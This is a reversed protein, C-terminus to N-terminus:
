VSGERAGEVSRVRGTQISKSSVFIGDAQVSLSAIVNTLHMGDPHYRGLRGSKVLGGVVLNYEQKILNHTFVQEKSMDVWVEGNLYCIRGTEPFDESYVWQRFNELSLGVGEPIRVTEQDVVITSM